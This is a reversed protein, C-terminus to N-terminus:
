NSKGELRVRIYYDIDYDINPKKVEVNYYNKIKSSNLVDNLVPEFKNSVLLTVSKSKGERILRCSKKILANCDTYLTAIHQTYADDNKLESEENYTLKKLLLVLLDKVPLKQIPTNDDADVFSILKKKHM